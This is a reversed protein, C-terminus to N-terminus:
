LERRNLFELTIKLAYDIEVLKDNNISIVLALLYNTYLFPEIEHSLHTKTNGSMVIFNM